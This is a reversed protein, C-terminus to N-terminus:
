LGLMVNPSCLILFFFTCSNKKKRKLKEVYDNMEGLVTARTLLYLCLLWKPESVSATESNLYYFYMAYSIIPDSCNRITLFHDSSDPSPCLHCGALWFSQSNLSLDQVAWLFGCDSVIWQKWRPGMAVAVNECVESTCIESTQQWLMHALLQECYCETVIDSHPIDTHIWNILNRAWRSCSDMNGALHTDTKLWLQHIKIM